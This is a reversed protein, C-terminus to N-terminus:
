AAFLFLEKGGETRQARGQGAHGDSPAVAVVARLGAAGGNRGRENGGAAVALRHYM